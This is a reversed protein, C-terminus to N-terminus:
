PALHRTPGPREWPLDSTMGATFEMARLRTATRLLDYIREPGSQWALHARVRAREDSVANLLDLDPKM